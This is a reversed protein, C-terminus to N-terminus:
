DVSFLVVAIRRFIKAEQVLNNYFIYPQPDILFDRDIVETASMVKEIPKPVNGDKGTFQNARRM